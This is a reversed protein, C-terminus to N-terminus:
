KIEVQKAQLNHAIYVTKEGSKLIEKVTEVPIGLKSAYESLKEVPVAEIGYQEKELSSLMGPNWGALTKSGPGPATLQMLYPGLHNHIGAYVDRFEIDYEHTFYVTKSPTVDALFWFYQEADHTYPYAWQRMVRTATNIQYDLVSHMGLVISMPTWVWGAGPLWIDLVAVALGVVDLAASYDPAPGASEPISGIYESSSSTWISLYNQTDNYEKIDITAYDIQSNYEPHPRVAGTCSLRFTWEWKSRSPIWVAYYNGLSNTVYADAYTGYYEKHNEWHQGPAAIAPLTTTLLSIIVMIITVAIISVKKSLKM